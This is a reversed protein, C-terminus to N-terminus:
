QRRELDKDLYPTVDLRGSVILMCILDEMARRDIALIAAAKAAIEMFTEEQMIKFSLRALETLRGTKNYRELITKPDENKM